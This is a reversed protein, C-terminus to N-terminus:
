ADILKGRKCEEQFARLRKTRTLLLELFVNWDDLRKMKKYLTRLKKLKRVAQRYHDRNKLAIDAQIAQHYLPLLVHPQESQLTKIRDSTISAFDFGVYTQLEMWKEYEKQGFLHLEYDHFSYPLMQALAKEYLDLRNNDNCFPAITRSTLKMFERCTYFDHQWNLYSKIRSVFEVVYAEMRRWDKQFSLHELWYFFYPTINEDYPHLLSLAEEDERLLFHIHIIGVEISLNKNPIAMLQQLIEERWGKRKFLGTWLVRFLHIREFEIFSDVELLSRSDEKLPEIFSDFAFPLSQVSLRAALDEMDEMLDQFLHRYYRNVTDEDHGLEVSLQILKNFSVLSGILLYLNKWEQEFPAGAKLRRIYVSFLDSIVYHRPDGNGRMISDFSEHFAESWAKYDPKLQGTDTLLDKARGIELSKATKQERLPKRWDDVWTSVSSQHSLIQFFVAMQHRCLGETPCSCESLYLLNLDLRVNAKIVDQVVASIGDKELKLQSVGGQRYLILGKQVVQADAESDPVLTSQLQEALWQLPELYSEPILSMM